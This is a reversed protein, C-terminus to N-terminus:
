QGGNPAAFFSPSQEIWGPILYPADGQTPVLSHSSTPPLWAFRVGLDAGRQAVQAPDEGRFLAVTTVECQATVELPQGTFIPGDVRRLAECDVVPVPRARWTGVGAAVTGVLLGVGVIGPVLWKPYGRRQHGVHGLFLAGDAALVCCVPFLAAGSRFATGSAAVGPALLGTVLPLLVGCMLAVVLLPRRRQRVAGVLALAPLLVLGVVVAVQLANQFMVLVGALRSGLPLTGVDGLLLDHIHVANGVRARAELWGPGGVALNRVYWAGTALPGSVSVALAAWRRQSLLFPLAVGFALVFGDGRTLAALVCAVVAPWLQLRCAALIAGAGLLGYLAISDPTSLFRVYGGGFAAMAAAFIEMRPNGGVVRALAATVPVWGCALLSTTVAAGVSDALWVGPVLVRSPLPMWHLDAPVPLGLEPGSLHWISRSVAGRGDAINRAVDLYYAPDWDIPVPITTAWALHWVLSLVTLLAIARPASVV